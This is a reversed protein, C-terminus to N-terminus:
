GCFADFFPKSGNSITIKETGLPVVNLSVKRNELKPAVVLKWQNYKKLLCAQVQSQWM